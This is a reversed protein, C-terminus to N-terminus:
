AARVKMADDERPRAEGALPLDRLEVHFSAGAGPVAEARIGGRHRAAVQQAITLGIGDGAGQESGHLRQFPEFLKDAYAM